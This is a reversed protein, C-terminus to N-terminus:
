FIPLEVVQIENQITKSMFYFFFLDIFELIIFNKTTPYSALKQRTRVNLRQYILTALSVEESLIYHTCYDVNMVM